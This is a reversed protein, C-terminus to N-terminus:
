LGISFELDLPVRVKRHGAFAIDIDVFERGEIIVFEGARADGFVVPLTDADDGGIVDVELISVGPVTVAFRRWETENSQISGVLQISVRGIDSDHWTRGSSGPVPLESISTSSRRTEDTFNFVVNASLVLREADPSPARSSTIELRVDRENRRDAVGSFRLAPVWVYGREVNSQQVTRHQQLLDLGQDDTFSTVRTEDMDIPDDLNLGELEMPLYIEVRTRGTQGIRDLGRHVELQSVQQPVASAPTLLFVLPWLAVRSQM